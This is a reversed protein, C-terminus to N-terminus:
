AVPLDPTIRFRLKGHAFRLLREVKLPSGARAFIFGLYSTGEPLPVLKQGRKATIVVDEIGELALARRIGTVERLFGARPIPIMMVGNAAKRRPYSPIAMGLTQRLILEELSM